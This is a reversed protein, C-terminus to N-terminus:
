CVLWVIITSMQREEQCVCSFWQMCLANECPQDDSLYTKSIFLLLLKQGSNNAIACMPVFLRASIKQMEWCM